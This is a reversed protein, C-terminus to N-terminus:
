GGRLFLFVTCLQIHTWKQHGLGILDPHECGVDL